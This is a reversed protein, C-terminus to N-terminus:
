RSLLFVDGRDLRDTHVEPGTVEIGEAAVCGKGGGDVDDRVELHLLLDDGHGVAVREGRVPLAALDLLDGADSVDEVVRPM